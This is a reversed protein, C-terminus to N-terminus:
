GVTLAGMSRAISAIVPAAGTGPGGGMGASIFVMDAGAVYRADQARHEEAGERGVPPSDGAGPGSAPPGGLQLKIPALNAMLAQRDTNAVLVEVGHINSEIMTNIANNGGGGVGIVKITADHSAIEDLEIM